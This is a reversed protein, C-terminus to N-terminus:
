AGNPREEVADFFNELGIEEGVSYSAKLRPLSRRHLPRDTPFAVYRADCRLFNARGSHEESKGADHRITFGLSEIEPFAEVVSENSSWSDAKLAVQEFSRRLKRRGTSPGIEIAAEINFPWAM